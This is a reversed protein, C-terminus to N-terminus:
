KRMGNESEVCCVSSHLKKVEAVCQLLGVNTSLQLRHRSLFAVFLGHGVLDQRSPVVFAICATNKRAVLPVCWSLVNSDVSMTADRAQPSM